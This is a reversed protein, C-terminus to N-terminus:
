CTLIVAVLFARGGPHLYPKSWSDLLLYRTLETRSLPSRLSIEDEGCFGCPM